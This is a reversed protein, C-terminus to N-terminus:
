QDLEKQKQKIKLKLELIELELELKAKTDPETRMAFNRLEENRKREIANCIDTATKNNSRIITM